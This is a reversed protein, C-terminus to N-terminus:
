LPSCRTVQECNRAEQRRSQLRQGATKGRLVQHFQELVGEANACGPSRDEILELMAGMTFEGIVPLENAKGLLLVQAEVEGARGLAEERRIGIWSLRRSLRLILVVPCFRQAPLVGAGRNQGTTRITM